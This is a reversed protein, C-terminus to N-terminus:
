NEDANPCDSAKTFGADTAIDEACFWTGGEAQIPITQQYGPCNPTRYLKEGENTIKGKIVCEEILQTQLSQQESDIECRSWLGKGTASAFRAASLMREGYLMDESVVPFAFGGELIRENVFVEKAENETNNIDDENTQKSDGQEGLESAIPEQNTTTTPQEDPQQNLLNKAQDTLTDINPAVAEDEVNASFQEERMEPTTPPEPTPSPEETFFIYRTWAGDSSRDLLPETEIRIEKGIMSENALLAEKGFCQVEKEVSPARVGIYRVIHGSELEITIPDRVGKVIGHDPPPTSNANDTDIGQSVDLEAGEPKIWGQWWGIGILAILVVLIGTITRIEM